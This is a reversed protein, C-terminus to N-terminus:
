PCSTSQVRHHLRSMAEVVEHDFFELGDEGTAAPEDNSKGGRRLM